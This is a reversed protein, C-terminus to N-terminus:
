SIIIKGRLPPATTKQLQGNPALTHTVVSPQATVTHEGMLLQDELHCCIWLAQIHPQSGHDALLHSQQYLLLCAQPLRHYLHHTLLSLGKRAFSSKSGEGGAQILIKSCTDLETQWPTNIDSSSTNSSTGSSSRWHVAQLVVHKKDARVHEQLGSRRTHKYWGESKHGQGMCFFHRLYVPTKKRGVKKM